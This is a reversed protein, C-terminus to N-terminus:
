LKDVKCNTQSCCEKEGVHGRRGVIKGSVALYELKDKMMRYGLFSIRGKLIDSMVNSKQIAKNLVEENTIKEIWEFKEMRRLFWIGGAKTKRIDTRNLTWNESECLLIPAIYCKLTRYRLQFPMRLNTLIDKKEMFVNKVVAIRCKIDVTSKVDPTM